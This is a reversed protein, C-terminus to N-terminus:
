RNGTLALPYMKAKGIRTTGLGPKVGNIASRDPGSGIIPIDWGYEEDIAV